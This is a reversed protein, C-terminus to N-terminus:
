VLSGGVDAVSTPALPGESVSTLFTAHPRDEFLQCIDQIFFLFNNVLIGAFYQGSSQSRSKDENRLLSVEGDLLFRM